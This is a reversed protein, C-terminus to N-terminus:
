SRESTNAGRGAPLDPGTPPPPIPAIQVAGMGVSRNMQRQQAHVDIGGSPLRTMSRVDALREM